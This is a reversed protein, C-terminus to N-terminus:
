HHRHHHSGPSVSRRHDPRDRDLRDDICALADKNTDHHIWTVHEDGVMQVEHSSYGNNYLTPCQVPELIVIQCDPFVQKIRDGADFGRTGLQANLTVELEVVTNGTVYYHFRYNGMENFQNM